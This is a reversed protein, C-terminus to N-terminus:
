AFYRAAAYRASAGVCRRAAGDGYRARQQACEVYRAVVREERSAGYCPTILSLLAFTFCCRPMLMARCAARMPSLFLLTAVAADAHRTPLSVAALSMLTADMHARAAYSM